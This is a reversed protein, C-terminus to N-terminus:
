LFSNKTVSLENQNINNKITSKRGFLGKKSAPFLPNKPSGTHDWVLLKDKHHASQPTKYTRYKNHGSRTSPKTLSITIEMEGNAIMQSLSDNPNIQKECDYSFEGTAPDEDAYVCVWIPQSSENTLAFQVEAQAKFAGLTLMIITIQVIKNM